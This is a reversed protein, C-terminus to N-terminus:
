ASIAVCDVMVLKSPGNKFFHSKVTWFTWCFNVNKVTKGSKKWFPVNCQALKQQIKILPDHCKMFANLCGIFM